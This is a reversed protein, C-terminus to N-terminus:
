PQISMNGFLAPLLALRYIFNETAVTAIFAFHLNARESVFVVIEM